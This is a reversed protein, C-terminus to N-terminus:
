LSFFYNFKAYEKFPELDDIIKTEYLRAIAHLPKSCDGADNIDIGEKEFDCLNKLREIIQLSNEIVNFRLLYYIDISRLKSMNRLVKAKLVLKCQESCISYISVIIIFKDKFFIKETLDVVEIVSVDEITVRGKILQSLNM